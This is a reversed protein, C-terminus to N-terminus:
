KFILLALMLANFFLFASLLLTMISSFGFSFSFNTKLDNEYMDNYTYNDKPINLQLTSNNIYTQIIKLDDLTFDIFKIQRNNSLMLDYEKNSNLSEKKINLSNQIKELIKELNDFFVKKNLNVYTKNQFSKLYSFDIRVFDKKDTIIIILNNDNENKLYLDTISSLYNINM